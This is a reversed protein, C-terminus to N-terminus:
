KFLSNATVIRQINNIGTFAYKNIFWFNSDSDATGATYIKQKEDEDETRLHLKIFM